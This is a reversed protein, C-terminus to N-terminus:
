TYIPMFFSDLNLTRKVEGQISDVFIIPNAAPNMVFELNIVIRKM